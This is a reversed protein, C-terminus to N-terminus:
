ESKKKCNGSGSLVEFDVFAEFGPHIIMGVQPGDALLAFTNTWIIIKFIKLFLPNKSSSNAQHFAVLNAMNKFYSLEVNGQYIKLEISIYVLANKLSFCCSLFLLFVKTSKMNSLYLLYQLMKIPWKMYCLDRIQSYLKYEM